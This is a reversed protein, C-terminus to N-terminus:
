PGDIILLHDAETIMGLHDELDHRHLTRQRHVALRLLQRGLDQGLDGDGEGEGLQAGLWTNMMMMMMLRM